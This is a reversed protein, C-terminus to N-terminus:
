EIPERKNMPDHFELRDPPVMSMTAERILKRSVGLKETVDIVARRVPYSVSPALYVAEIIDAAATECHIGGPAARRDLTRDFSGYGGHPWVLPGLPGAAVHRMTRSKMVRAMM